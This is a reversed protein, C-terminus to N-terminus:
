LLGSGLFIMSMCSYSLLAKDSECLSFVLIKREADEKSWTVEIPDLYDEFIHICIM